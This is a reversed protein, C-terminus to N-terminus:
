TLDFGLSGQCIEFLGFMGKCLVDRTDVSLRLGRCPSNRILRKQIKIPGEAVGTYVPGRGKINTQLKCVFPTSGNACAQM